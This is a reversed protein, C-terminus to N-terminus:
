PAIGEDYLDVGSYVFLSRLRPYADAALLRVMQDIVWAKHHGGDVQGYLLAIALAQESSTGKHLKIIEETLQEETVSLDPDQNGTGMTGEDPTM